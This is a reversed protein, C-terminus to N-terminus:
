AWCICSLSFSSLPAVDVVAREVSCSASSIAVEVVLSAAVWIVSVVVWDVEQVAVVATKWTKVKEDEKLDFFLTGKETEIRFLFIEDKM